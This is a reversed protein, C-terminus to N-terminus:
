MHFLPMMNLCIDSASLGWSDIVLVAGLIIQHLTLPVIKKTGSTGSTFLVLCVDSAQNPQAPLRDMELERDQSDALVFEGSERFEVYYVAINSQATWEALHLKKAVEATTLICRAQVQEVDARFQEVGVAPNIPAASFHAAVAFCATALVPGNPIAIAVVPNRSGKEKELPLRFTAVAKKLAGFSVRRSGDPFHFAPRDSDEVMDALSEYSSHIKEVATQLAQSVEPERGAKAAEPMGDRVAAYCRLLDLVPWIRPRENLLHLLLSLAKRANGEGKLMSSLLGKPDRDAIKLIAQFQPSSKVDMGPGARLEALLAALGTDSNAM